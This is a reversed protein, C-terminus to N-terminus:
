TLCNRLINIVSDVREHETLTDVGRYTVSNELRGLVLRIDSKLNEPSNNGIQSVLGDAFGKQYSQKLQDDLEAQTINMNNRMLESESMTDNVYHITITKHYDLNQRGHRSAYAIYILINSRKWLEVLYSKVM